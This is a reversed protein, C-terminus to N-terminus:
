LGGAPARRCGDHCSGSASGSTGQGRDDTVGQDATLTAAAV